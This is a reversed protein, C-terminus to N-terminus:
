TAYRRVGNSGSRKLNLIRQLPSNRMGASKFENSIADSHASLGFTGFGFACFVPQREGVPVHQPIAANPGFFAFLSPADWAKQLPPLGELQHTANSVANSPSCLSPALACITNKPNLRNWVRERRGVWTNRHSCNRSVLIMLRVWPVVKSRRRMGKEDGLFGVHDAKPRGGGVMFRIEGSGRRGSLASSCGSGMFATRGQAAPKLAPAQCARGSRRVQRGAVSSPCCGRVDPRRVPPSVVPRVCAMSRAVPDGAPRFPPRGRVGDRSRPAFARLHRGAGTRSPAPRLAVPPLFTEHWIPRM